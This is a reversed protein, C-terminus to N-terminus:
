DVRKNEIITLCKILKLELVEIVNNVIFLKELGNMLFLRVVFSSKKKLTNNLHIQIFKM